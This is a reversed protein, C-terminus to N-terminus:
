RPVLDEGGARIEQVFNYIDEMGFMTESSAFRVEGGVGLTELAHLFEISALNQASTIDEGLAGSLSYPDSSWNQINEMEEETLMDSKSIVKLMPIALRFSATTALLLSSVFGNANRSLIPDILFCLTSREPGFQEILKRSSERFTFLELQGPTDIIVFDTEFESISKWVSSANIALLDAAAVQAGNPGLGYEKMIEPLSIWETIDVDSEYPKAEAGPDLNVLISDYGQTNLWESFAATITSKGSGATGVFYLNFAEEV